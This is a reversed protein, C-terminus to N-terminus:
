RKPCRKNEWKNNLLQELLKVDHLTTMGKSIRSKLQDLKEQYDEM